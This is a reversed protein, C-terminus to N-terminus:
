GGVLKGLTDKNALNFNDYGGYDFYFPHVANIERFATQFDNETVVRRSEHIDYGYGWGANWRASWMLKALRYKEPGDQAVIVGAYVSETKSTVWMEAQLYNRLRRVAVPMSQNRPWSTYRVWKRDKFILMHIGVVSEGVPRLRLTDLRYDVLALAFPMLLEEPLDKVQISAEKKLLEKFNSTPWSFYSHPTLHNNVAAIFNPWRMNDYNDANPMEYFVNSNRDAVRIFDSNVQKRLWVLMNEVPRCLICDDGKEWRFFTRKDSLTFNWGGTSKSSLSSSLAAFRKQLSKSSEGGRLLKYKIDILEGLESDHEKLWDVYMLIKADDGSDLLSQLFAVEEMSENLFM